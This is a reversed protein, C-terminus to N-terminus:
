KPCDGVTFAFLADKQPEGMVDTSSAVFFCALGDGGKNPVCSLRGDFQGVLPALSGGDM